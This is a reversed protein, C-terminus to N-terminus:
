KMEDYLYKSAWMCIDTHCKNCLVTPEINSLYESLYEDADNISLENCIDCVLTYNNQQLIM